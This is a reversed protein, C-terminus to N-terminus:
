AGNLALLRNFAADDMPTASGLATRIDDLPTFRSGAVRVLTGDIMRALEYGSASTRKWTDGVLECSVEEEIQFYTGSYVGFSGCADTAVFDTVVVYAVVNGDAEAARDTRYAVQMRDFTGDVAGGEGWRQYGDVDSVFPRPVLATIRQREADEALQREVIPPASIAVIAAVVSLFAIVRPPGAHALLASIAPAIASVLLAAPRLGTFDGGDGLMVTWFAWVAIPLWLLGVLAQWWGSRRGLFAAGIGGFAAAAVVLIIVGYLVAVGIGGFGAAVVGRPVIVALVVGVAFAALAHL